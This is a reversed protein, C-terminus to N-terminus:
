FVELSFRHKPIQPYMFYVSIIVFQFMDFLHINQFKFHLKYSEYWHSLPPSLKCFYGIIYLFVIIKFCDHSMTINSQIMMCNYYLKNNLSDNQNLHINSIPPQENHLHIPYHMYVIGSPHCLGFLVQQHQLSCLLFRSLLHKHLLFSFLVAPFITM